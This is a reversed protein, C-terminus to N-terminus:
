PEVRHRTDAFQEIYVANQISQCATKIRKGGGYVAVMADPGGHLRATACDAELDDERGAYGRTAYSTWGVPVGLLNMETYREPVCLDVIVPIGADQWQRAVSRKRWTCWLAWAYPSSPFLSYNLEVCCKCDTALLQLPSPELASFRYDDVYYVWTGVMKSSRGVSGWPTVPHEISGQMDLRLLPIGQDHDIPLLETPGALRM